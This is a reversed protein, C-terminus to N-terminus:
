LLARVATLQRDEAGARVQDRHNSGWCFIYADAGQLIACTHRWGAAVSSAASDLPVTAPDARSDQTDDGLQGYANAGWCRVEGDSMRACNHRAGAVLQVAGVVDDVDREASRRGRYGLQGSDNAGWCRVQGEELRACTHASGAVVDTADGISAVRVPSPLFGDPRSDSDTGLQREFNAGWCHVHGISDRVCTHERGAAVQIIEDLEVVPVPRLKDVSTGDGLQGHLNRGWCATTRDQLLACTHGEGATVGVVTDLEVVQVPTARDETGGDGLQGWANHGWCRVTGNTHLSCTHFSGAAIRVVAELGDVAAPRPRTTNRLTALEPDGQQAFQNAGWCRVRRGSLFCSHAGGLALMDVADPVPDRPGAVIPPREPLLEPEAPQEPIPPAYATPSASEEGGCALGAVLVLHLFLKRYGSAM